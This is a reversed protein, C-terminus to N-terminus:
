HNPLALYVTAGRNVGGEAWGRGGHRAVIRRVNALGIGTGEFDQVRHLRQFVGFLKDAYQMDFGVGNDRVFIVLENPNGDQCGIEIEAPNRPRTYKIANALLNVFVQRLMAIDGRARPLRSRKWVINRGQTDPQLAQLTEEVLAELDVDTQLMAARGMRSFSLLDDILQGMEKASDLVQGLYYRSKEDLKEGSRQRVLGAFSAIHRIPARLDHSVSYSFAELERNATELQATREAVRLELTANLRQIEEEARKREVIEAKLKNTAQVLEATREQVRLELEEASQRRLKALELHARVRALLERASFPKVLYDDAGTDLGEVASEEGARASLLIVPVTKTRASKRLERLLGFGDLGPMMVDTLVLDPPDAEAAALAKLGDPVPLVDYRGALLRCVYDRMDANDDAWLIRSRKAGAPLSTDPLLPVGASNASGYDAESPAVANPLWHLAEEVYAASRTATWSLVRETGIRNSPLHATGTKITITFTSGKEEESAVSLNGGHLGVLEQVLALGIGTGEHTRSKAGKVRHFRECLRPLAEAPIGVGSDAVALKVHDDCWRLTVDIGGEFTHKFANSLLNLVIKEWMERDVYVPEPLAPCDIALTLGANEIASRFVSALEATHAALDTPEYTAQVRGAEIRSFDLLTNVLKLLRLSNRHATELRERREQPLPNAREALEDELPGLLLTLPTRFEHSVNSFFATKARDIEALAEARKREEQYARANAVAPPVGAALLDYFARYGENLQLRSSVGAVLIGVPQECGPPTIPLAMAEKVSEPYPGCSLHGFRGELDDVHRAQGSHTVEILPWGRQQPIELNVLAPSAVTGHQLGASAILRAEKRLTDFLYFLVFPLDLEYEALTQAALTCAEEMTQAKGARAALDRLRTRRESLMRSTTETVPHFLGGVGGTEDRIPSFSFTFFTEELYGNRDLFMRQNELYSTEGALAREFAEGIAPWASAWCESFDQGMSHPHKGGCIPWYGDNYIQVHKPGWALSIPFNSALCLSVTTRLSQPWSEIPGLPTKTWDMSRILKSMEGGGVLWYEPRTLVSSSSAQSPDAQFAMPFEM